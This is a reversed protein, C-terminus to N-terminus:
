SYLYTMELLLDLRLAMIYCVQPVPRNTNSFCCNGNIVVTNVMAVIVVSVVAVEAVIAIYM